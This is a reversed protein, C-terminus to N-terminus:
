GAESNVRGAKKQLNHFCGWAGRRSSGQHFVRGYAVLCGGSITALLTTGPHRGIKKLGGGTPHPQGRQDKGAGPDDPEELELHDQGASPLDGGFGQRHLDAKDADRKDQREGDEKQRSAVLETRGLQEVHPEDVSHDPGKEDGETLQPGREVCFVNDDLAPDGPNANPHQRKGKEHRGAGPFRSDGEHGRGVSRLQDHAQGHQISGGKWRQTDTQIEKEGVDDARRDGEENGPHDVLQPGLDALGPLHPAIAQYPEQTFPPHALDPSRFV